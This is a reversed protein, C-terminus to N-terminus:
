RQTPSIEKGEKYFRVKGDIAIEKLNHEPACLKGYLEHYNVGRKRDIVQVRKNDVHGALLLHHCKTCTVYKLLAPDAHHRKRKAWPLQLKM